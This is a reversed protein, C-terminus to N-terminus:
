RGGPHLGGRFGHKDLAARLARLTDECPATVKRKEDLSLALSRVNTNRRSLEVIHTNVDVFHNLADTAAALRKQSPADVLPSLVALTNRVIAEQAKMRTELGAM